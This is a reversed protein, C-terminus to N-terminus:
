GEAEQLHRERPLAAGEPVNPVVGREAQVAAQADAELVVARSVVKVSQELMATQLAALGAELRERLEVLVDPSFVLEEEAVEAHLMELYTMETWM